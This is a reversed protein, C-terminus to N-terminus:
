IVMLDNNQTWVRVYQTLSSAGFELIYNENESIGFPILRKGKLSSQADTQSHYPNNILRTGPRRTIGGQPLISFNELRLCSNQYISSNYKGILKPSIIGATFDNQLINSM